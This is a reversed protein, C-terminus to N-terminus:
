RRLNNLRAELESMAPDAAEEGGAGVQEGNSVSAGGGGLPVKGGPAEPVSEGLNIGLEDFIQGVIADAEAESGEETMADDLADGMSEQMMEAQENERAFDTMIKQLGPLNMQRNMSTLAKTVGKMANTM